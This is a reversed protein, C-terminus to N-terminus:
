ASTPPRKGTAMKSQSQVAIDLKPHNHGIEGSVTRRSYESLFM